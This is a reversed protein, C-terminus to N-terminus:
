NYFMNSQAIFYNARSRGSVERFFRAIFRRTNRPESSENSGDLPFSSSSSSFPANNGGDEDKDNYDTDEKDANASGERKKKRGEEKVKERAIARFILIQEIELLDEIGDLDEEREM